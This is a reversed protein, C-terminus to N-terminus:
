AKEPEREQVSDNVAKAEDWGRQADVAENIAKQIVTAQRIDDLSLGYLVYRINRLGQSLRDGAALLAPTM